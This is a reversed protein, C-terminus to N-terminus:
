VPWIRELVKQVFRRKFSPWQEPCELASRQVCTFIDKLRSLKLQDNTRSSLAVRKAIVRWKLVLEDFEGQHTFQSLEEEEPRCQSRAM